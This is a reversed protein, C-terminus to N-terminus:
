PACVNFVIYPGRASPLFDGTIRIGVAGNNVELDETATNCDVGENAKRVLRHIKVVIKSLDDYSLDLPSYQTTRTSESTQATLPQSVLVCLALQLLLKHELPSVCM